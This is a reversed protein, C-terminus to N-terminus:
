YLSKKAYVGKWFYYSTIWLFLQPFVWQKSLTTLWYGLLPAIGSYKVLFLRVARKFSPTPLKDPSTQKQVYKMYGRGTNLQRNYIDKWSYAHRHLGIANHLVVLSLGAVGLRGGLELDEWGYQTFDEAFMEKAVVSRKVSLHSAYFFHTPDAQTKGLLSDFDNQQGGHVMWEMAATPELRPDWKVMGLCGVTPSDNESHAQLHQSLATPLLIIDAGLFFIVDATSEQIGRNRAQAIGKHPGSLVVPRAWEKSWTIRDVVPSVAQESGDDCIIVRLKWGRPIEQSALAVLTKSLTTVRNYVPIVVDCTNM